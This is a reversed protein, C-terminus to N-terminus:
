STVQLIDNKDYLLVMDGVAFMQDQHKHNNYMILLMNLINLYRTCRALLSTPKFTLAPNEPCYCSLPCHSTRVM